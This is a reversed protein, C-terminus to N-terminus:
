MSVAGVHKPTVTAGDDPLAILEHKSFNSFIGNFYM